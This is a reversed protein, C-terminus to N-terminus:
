RKPRTFFVREANATTTAALETTAEGRIEALRRCVEVVFGPENRKGRHPVPALYPADTEILIRDAAVREIAALDTWSKFTVMGSFSLYWGSELGAERLESGSSFSHLVVTAAPQERLIAVVDADAQRAHIVAPLGCEVALALQESFVRRQVDRPAHDYHYDLGMEGAAAVSPHRWIARLRDALAGDWRSADHPHCGTALALNPEGAIWELTADLQSLVSEVVLARGVGAARMRELVEDRDPAFAPDALHCHTDILM